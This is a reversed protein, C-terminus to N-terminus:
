AQLNLKIRVDMAYAIWKKKDTLMKFVEASDNLKDDTSYSCPGPTISLGFYTYISKSPNNWVSKLYGLFGMKQAAKEVVFIWSSYYKITVTKALEVTYRELFTKKNQDVHSKKKPDFKVYPTMEM